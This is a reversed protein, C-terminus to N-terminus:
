LRSSALKIAAKIRVYTACRCLNAGMASDIEEDSPKSNERLLATAAMIQGSQCWGCQPTNKEVWADQVIKLVKDPTSEVTTVKSNGVDSLPLQCSRTPEGNVHVTCAGCLGQGCGYKTGTFNLHDRLVWLLPTDSAADVEFDKGNVNIKM